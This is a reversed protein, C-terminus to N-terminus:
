RSAWSIAANLCYDHWETGSNRSARYLMEDVKYQVPVIITGDTNKVTLTQHQQVM